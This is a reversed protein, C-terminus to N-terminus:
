PGDAESSATPQTDLLRVVADYCYADHSERRAERQAQRFVRRAENAIATKLEAYTELPGEIKIHGVQGDEWWRVTREALAKAHAAELAEPDAAAVVRKVEDHLGGYQHAGAIKVLYEAKDPAAKTGKCVEALQASSLSAHRMAQEVVASSGVEEAVDALRNAAGVPTGAVAAIFSGLSRHGTTAWTGTADIRHIALIELAEAYRTITTARRLVVRAGNGDFTEAELERTLKELQSQVDELVEFPGVAM